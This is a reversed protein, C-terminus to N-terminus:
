LALESHPPLILMEHGHAQVMLECNGAKKRLIKKIKLQKHMKQMTPDSANFKGVKWGHALFARMHPLACVCSYGPTMPLDNWEKKPADPGHLVGFMQQAIYEDMRGINKVHLKFEHNGMLRLLCKRVIPRELEFARDNQAVITKYRGGHVNPDYRKDDVCISECADGLHAYLGRPDRRIIDVERIIGKEYCAANGEHGDSMMYLHCNDPVYAKLDCVRM